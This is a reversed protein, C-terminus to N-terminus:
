QLLHRSLEAFVGTAVLYVVNLTVFGIVAAYFGIGRARDLRKPASSAKLLKAYKRLAFWACVAGAGMVFPIPNLRRSILVSIMPLLTFLAFLLWLVSIFSSVAALAHGRTSRLGATDLVFSLTYGCEPCQTTTIGKLQYGCSPCPSNHQNIYAVVARDMLTPPDSGPPSPDPALAAHANM